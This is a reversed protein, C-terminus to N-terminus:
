LKEDVGNNKPGPQPDEEGSSSEAEQSEAGAQDVTTTPEEEAVPEQDHDVEGEAVAETSSAKVAKPGEKDSAEKETEVIIAQRVDEEDIAVIMHALIEDNLEFDRNLQANGAGESKFQLLVYTGYRQKEVPYALRKKGMVEEYLLEGSRKKLLAKTVGVLKSLGEDELNPNAIYIAEYYRM